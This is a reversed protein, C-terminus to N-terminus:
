EECQTYPRDKWADMRTKKLMLILCVTSVPICFSELRLYQLVDALFVIKSNIAYVSYVSCTV